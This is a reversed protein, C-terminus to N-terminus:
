CCLLIADFSFKAIAVKVRAQESHPAHPYQSVVTVSETNASHIVTGGNTTFKESNWKKYEM